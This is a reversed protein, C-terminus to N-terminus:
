IAWSYESNSSDVSSAHKESQKEIPEDYEQGPHQAKALEKLEEKEDSYPKNSKDKRFVCHSFWRELATVNMYWRYGSYSLDIVTIAVGVWGLWAVARLLFVREAFIKAGKAGWGLLRSTAISRGQKEALHELLPAAYSCAALLGFFSSAGGSLARARLIARQIPDKEGHIKNWDLFASIAGATVALLGAAIKFGGRVIDAGKEVGTVVNYQPQERVSKTYAYMMDLTISAISFASAAVELEAIGWEGEKLSSIKGLLAISEIGALVGGIRAQHYNNTPSPENPIRDNYLTEKALDKTIKKYSSHQEASAQLQTQLENWGLKKAGQALQLKAKLQADGILDIAAMQLSAKVRKAQRYARRQQATKRAASAKELKDADAHKKQLDLWNEPKIKLALTGYEIQEALDGLCSQLLANARAAIAMELKGGMGKRAVSRTVTSVLYFFRAEVNAIHKPNLYNKSQGQNRMWEDLASDTSKVASVFGKTAKQWSTAPVASLDSMGAVLATVEAFAKDAEKKVADQDRTFARLLLNEHTISTATAWETLVAEAKPSGEMGFICGVVHALLAEGSPVNKSDYIDFANLVRKSQLWLMHQPARADAKSRAIPGLRNLADNFRKMEEADVVSAYKDKWMKDARDQATDIMHQEDRDRADEFQTM